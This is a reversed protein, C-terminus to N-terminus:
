LSLVQIHTNGIISSAKVTGTSTGTVKIRAKFSYTGAPFRRRVAGPIDDFNQAAFLYTEGFQTNSTDFLGLSTTQGSVTNQLENAHLIVMIPRSSTFSGTALGTVDTYTTSTTSFDSTIEAYVLETMAPAPNNVGGM